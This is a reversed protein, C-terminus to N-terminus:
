RLVEQRTAPRGDETERATRYPALNGNLAEGIAKGLERATDLRSLFVYNAGAEYIAQCDPFSVANAIIVAQPNIRRVNEVLKRNNTGRLLDDPVTLVVVEARDVGAHHLTEPNALDGYKVHAGVERIRDHLSVNFDVVLTKGALAPDDRAIDYLLSSAIRHFGLIALRYVAVEEGAAEPPDRFGFARLVPALREHIKYASRYLPTTVIATLVFAFIIASSLDKPLHGLDTGLFAIVLSFESIQAIRVATVEANRQDLGNFYLVPFLILQRAAIAAVAIAVALLLVGPGSPQPIGLGLGVFFLTVFFDKVVGVKTVIETSYPHSAITAGAILAGMGSGVNLHFQVGFLKETLPDFSAGAFVIAFCWCIAGVLIIEPVKAIWRFGIPIITRAVVIAIATLLGIGLFSALIALIHPEHLSPQVIIVVISWLDEVVLLGLAVRGPVTDLEFAEQFLKVVLLTSSAAIVIGVYLAGFGHGIVGAFGILLLLQAVLFGFVAILPYSLLGTLLIARGSGIIKGVDMELGIVFLLLVFGLQAITNINDPDTVLGLALPGAVVGAVIYGAIAPLHLRAFLIALVGSLLLGIGIDHVLAPMAGESAFAPSSVAATCALGILGPWV